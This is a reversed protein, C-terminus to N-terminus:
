IKSSFFVEEENEEEEEEEKEEKEEKEEDTLVVDKSGDEDCDTADSDVQQEEVEENNQDIFSVCFKQVNKLFFLKM